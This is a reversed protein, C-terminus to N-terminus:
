RIARNYRSPNTPCIQLDRTPQLSLCVPPGAASKERNRAPVLFLCLHCRTKLAKASIKGPSRASRASAPMRVKSHAAIFIMTRRKKPQPAQGERQPRGRCNTQRTQNCCKKGSERRSAAHENLKVVVARQRGRVKQLIYVATQEVARQHM